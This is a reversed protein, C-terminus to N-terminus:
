ARGGSATRCSQHNIISSPHHIISSQTASGALVEKRDVGPNHLDVIPKTKASVDRPSEGQLGKEPLCNGGMRGGAFQSQKARCARVERPPDPEGATRLGFWNAKNQVSAGSGPGLPASTSPHFTPVTSRRPLHSVRRTPQAGGLLSIPKTKAAADAVGNGHLGKRPRCNVSTRGTAFQSQEANENGRGCGAPGVGHSGAARMDNRPAWRRLLRLAPFQRQSM